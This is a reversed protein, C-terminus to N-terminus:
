IFISKYIVLSCKNVISFYIFYILNFDFFLIYKKRKKIKHIQLNLFNYNVFNYIMSYVLQSKSNRALFFSLITRVLFWLTTFQDFSTLTSITLKYLFKRYKSSKLQKCLIFNRMTMFIYKLNDLKFKFIYFYNLIITFLFFIKQKQYLFSLLTSLDIGGYFTCSEYCYIFILFSNM